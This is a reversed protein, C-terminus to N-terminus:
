IQESLELNGIIARMAKSFQSNPKAVAAFDDDFMLTPEYDIVTAVPHEVVDRLEALRKEVIDELHKKDADDEVRNPRPVMNVVLVPELASLKLRPITKSLGALNQADLRTIVVARDVHPLVMSSSPSYGPRLDVLLVDLSASDVIAEFIANILLKKKGDDFKVEDALIPNSITPIYQLTGDGLEIDFREKLLNDVSVLADPAAHASNNKLIHLLEQDGLNPEANFMTALASADLDFDIMAVKKGMTALLAGVGVMVKTRGVGGKYSYFAIRM